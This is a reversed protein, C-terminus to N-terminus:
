ICIFINYQLQTQKRDIMTSNLCKKAWDFDRGSGLTGKNLLGCSISLALLFTDRGKTDSEPAFSSLEPGECGTRGLFLACMRPIARPVHGVTENDKKVAVAYRDTPSDSERACELEEGITADWINKYM